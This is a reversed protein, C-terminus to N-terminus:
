LATLKSKAKIMMHITSGDFKDSKDKMSEKLAHKPMTKNLSSISLNRLLVLSPSTLDSIAKDIEACTKTTGRMKQNKEVILKADVIAVSKTKGTM